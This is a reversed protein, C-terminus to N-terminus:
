VKDKFSQHRDRQNTLENIFLEIGNRKIKPLTGCRIKTM